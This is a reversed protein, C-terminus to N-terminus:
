TKRAFVDDRVWSFSFFLVSFEDCRNTKFESFHVMVGHSSESKFRKVSYHFKFVGYHRLTASCRKQLEITYSINESYFFLYDDM